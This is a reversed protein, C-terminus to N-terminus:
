GTLNTAKVRPSRPSSPASPTKSRPSKPAKPRRPSTHKAKSNTKMAKPKSAAKTEKMLTELMELHALCIPKFSNGFKSSLEPIETLISAQTGAQELAQKWPESPSMMEPEVPEKLFIDRYSRNIREPAAKNSPELALWANSAMAVAMKDQAVETLGQLIRIPVDRPNKGSTKAKLSELPAFDNNVLAAHIDTCFVGPLIERSGPVDNWQHLATFGYDDHGGVWVQFRNLPGYISKYNCSLIDGLLKGTPKNLLMIRVSGEAAGESDAVAVGRHSLADFLHAFPHGVLLYKGKTSHTAMRFSPKEKRRRKAKELPVSPLDKAAKLVMHMTKLAEFASERNRTGSRYARRVHEVASQGEPKYHQGRNYLSLVAAYSTPDCKLRTVEEAEEDWVKDPLAFFLARKAPNGSVADIDTAAKLTSRYCGILTRSAAISRELAERAQAAQAAKQAARQATLM